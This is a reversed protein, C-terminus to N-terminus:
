GASARQAWGSSKTRATPRLSMSFGSSERGAHAAEQLMPNLTGGGGMVAVKGPYKRAAAQIVEIDFSRASQEPFPSPLFLYMASNESPMAQIAEEIAHGALAKDIHTHVDIYPSLAADGAFAPSGGTAFLLAILVRKM